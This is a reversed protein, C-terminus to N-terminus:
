VKDGSDHYTGSSFLECSISVRVEGESPTFKVQLPPFFSSFESAKRDPCNSTLKRVANTILNRIVQEIRYIDVYLILSRQSVLLETSVIDLGSEEDLFFVTCFQFCLFM